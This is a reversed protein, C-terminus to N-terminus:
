RFRMLLRSGALSLLSGLVLLVGLNPVLSGVTGQALIGRQVGDYLYYAPSVVAWRSLVLSTESFSAPAFLAIFCLGTWSSAAAPGKALLGIIGGLASFVLSALSVLVLTVLFASVSTGCLVIVMMASITGLFSSVALKGFWVEWPGAPSLMIQQLTGAEKEEVLNSAALVMSAMAALVVTPAFWFDLRGTAQTDKSQLRVPLAQDAQQRIASRLYERALAVQTPRGRDTWFTLVPRQGALLQRDFDDEILLLLVWKGKRLGAQSEEVNNVRVVRLGPNQELVRVLGSEEPSVVAMVVPRLDSEQTLSRFILALCLPSLLVVVAVQSRVSEKLDKFFLAAIYSLM